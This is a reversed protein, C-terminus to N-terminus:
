LVFFSEEPLANDGCLHTFNLGRMVIPWAYM